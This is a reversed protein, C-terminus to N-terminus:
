HTGPHEHPSISAKDLVEPAVGFDLFAEYSIEHARAYDAAHAIFGELLTEGSSKRGREPLGQTQLSRRQQLLQLRKASNLGDRALRDDIKALETELTRTSSKAAPQAGNLSDLYRLVARSVKLQEGRTSADTQDSQNKETM